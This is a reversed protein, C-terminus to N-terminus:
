KSDIFVAVVDRCGFGSASMARHQMDGDFLLIDGEKIEIIESKMNFIRTSPACEFNGGRVTKDKRIYFLITYPTRFMSVVNNDIHWNAGITSKVPEAFCSKQHFEVAYKSRNYDTIGYKDLYSYALSVIDQYEDVDPSNYKIQKAQFATNRKNNFVAIHKNILMEKDSQTLVDKIRIYEKKSKFYAPNLQQNIETDAM